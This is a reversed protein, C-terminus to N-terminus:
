RLLFVAGAVLAGMSLLIGAYCGWLTPTTPLARARRITWVGHAIGIVAPIVGVFCWITLLAAAGLMVSLTQDSSFSQLAVASVGELTFPHRCHTCRDVTVDSLGGCNPCAILSEGTESQVIQPAQRGSAAYAHLTGECADRHNSRSRLLPIGTRPDIAPVTVDAGCTPCRGTVGTTDADGALM